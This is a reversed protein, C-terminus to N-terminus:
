VGRHRGDRLYWDVTRRLSEDVSVPPSWDLENRTATIDVQLSGCLRRVEDGRGLLKGAAVLWGAPVPPLTISKNMARAIRRILAPTSLDEGDSVMWVRGSPVTPGLLRQLLDCLNWISVLSRQNAVAGLPLPLGKDVWRMLRWFNARVGPGYVLPPRVIAYSLGDNAVVRLSQEARWKSVGYPDLPQPPDLHSYAGRQTEEGNVKISSLYVFRRVGSRLAASALCQTGRANTELYLNENAPSDHLVHVRAALHIVYDVGEIARSWDTTGGIDGVVFRETVSAPVERDTRLAARVLYGSRALTESLVTGVFGNAGTLLVRASM